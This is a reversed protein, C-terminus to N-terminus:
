ESPSEDGTADPAPSRVSNGEDDESQGNNVIVTALEGMDAAIWDLSEDTLKDGRPTQKHKMELPSGDPKAANRLSVVGYACAKLNYTGQKVVAAGDKVSVTCDQLETMQARTLSRLTFVPQKDAPLKRHRKLVYEFTTGPAFGFVTTM